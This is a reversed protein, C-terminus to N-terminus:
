VPFTVGPQLAMVGSTSGDGTHEKLGDVTITVFPVVAVVVSVILVVPVVVLPVPVAARWACERIKYASKNGNGKTTIAPNPPAPLRFLFNNLKIKKRKM